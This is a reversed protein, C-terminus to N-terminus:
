KIQKGNTLDRLSFFLEFHLGLHALVVVAVALRGDVPHDVHLHEGGVSVSGHYPFETVHHKNSKTTSISTEAVEKFYIFFIWFAKHESLLGVM